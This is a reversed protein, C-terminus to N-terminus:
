IFLVWGTFVALTLTTVHGIKQSVDLLNPLRQLFGYITQSSCTLRINTQCLTSCDTSSSVVVDMEHQWVWLFVLLLPILSVVLLACLVSIPLFSEVQPYCIAILTITIVHLVQDLVFSQSQKQCTKGNVKLWDITFHAVGLILLVMFAQAQNEILFFTVLLHLIVHVALGKNGGEVKLKYVRSTQLPFDGILHALMLITFTEIM